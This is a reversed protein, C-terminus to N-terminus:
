ILNTEHVLYFALTKSHLPRIQLPPSPIFNNITDVNHLHTSLHIGYWIKDLKTWFAVSKFSTLVHSFFLIHLPQPSIASNKANRESTYNVQVLEGRGRGKKIQSVKDIMRSKTPCTFKSSCLNMWETTFSCLWIGLYKVM